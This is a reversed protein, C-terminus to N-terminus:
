ADCETIRGDAYLWYLKGHRLVVIRAQDGSDTMAQRPVSALAERVRARNLIEAIQQDTLPVRFSRLWGEADHGHPWVDVVDRESAGTVECVADILARADM